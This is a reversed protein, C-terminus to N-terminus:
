ISKLKCSFNLLKLSEESFALFKQLTSPTLYEFGSWDKDKYYVLSHGPYPAGGKRFFLFLFGNKDINFCIAARQTERNNNIV